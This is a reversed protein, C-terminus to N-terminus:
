SPSASSALYCFTSHTSAHSFGATGKVPVCWGSATTPGPNPGRRCRRGGPHSGWPGPLTAPRTSPLRAPGAGRDVPMSNASASGCGVIGDSGENQGHFQETGGNCRVRGRTAGHTVHESTMPTANRGLQQVFGCRRSKRERRSLFNLTGRPVDFGSARRERFKEEAVPRERFSGVFLRREMRVRPTVTGKHKRFSGTVIQGM